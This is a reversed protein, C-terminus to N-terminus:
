TCWLAADKAISLQCQQGRIQSNWMAREVQNQVIMLVRIVIQGAGLYAVHLSQSVLLHIIMENFSKDSRLGKASCEDIGAANLALYGECLAGFEIWREQVEGECRWQRLMHTALESLIHRAELNVAQWRRRITNAFRIVALGRSLQMIRALQLQIMHRRWAIACLLLVGNTIERALQLPAVFLVEMLIYQGASAGFQTTEVPIKIQRQLAAVADGMAAQNDVGEVASLHM